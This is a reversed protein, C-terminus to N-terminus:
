TRVNQVSGGIGLPAFGGQQPKRDSSQFPWHLNLRQSAFFPPGAGNPCHGAALRDEWTDELLAITNSVGPPAFHVAAALGAELIM